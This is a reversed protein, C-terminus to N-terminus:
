AVTVKVAHDRWGNHGYGRENEVRLEPQLAGDFGVARSAITYTGASLTVPFVFQRWAYPGLLPGYFSAARWSAGGDLSIDVGKVASAGAFAVGHIQVPGAALPADGDPSTVFSKLSMEWMSPQTPAGKEGIPRVRYGSRQINADTQELTFAVRQVYKVNNVGYYGPIVIRLPGGHAVPLPAGNLEWALLAQEMAAWPVSREVRVTKPDIGAPLTEGGTSTMYRMGQQVGGLRAVVTKVPVGTWFSCGAAGVTWQTGSAKHGFFGRGNGSCQLVMPVSELGMRKLEGVTLTAPHSVGEMQVQWADPNGMDVPPLNNRVFLVRDDTVVSAGLAGRVTEITNSSHVIVREADKWGAYGPLPKGKAFASPVVGALGAAAAGGASTVLFRRRNRDLTPKM